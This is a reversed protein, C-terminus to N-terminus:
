LRMSEDEDWLETAIREVDDLDFGMDNGTQQMKATACARLLAEAIEIAGPEECTRKFREFRPADLVQSFHMLRFGMAMRLEQEPVRDKLQEMVALMGRNFPRDTFAYVNDDIAIKKTEPNDTPMQMSAAASYIGTCWLFLDADVPKTFRAFVEPHLGKSRSKASIRKPV